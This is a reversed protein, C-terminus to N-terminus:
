EEKKFNRTYIEFGGMGRAGYDSKPRRRGGKRFPPGLSPNDTRM